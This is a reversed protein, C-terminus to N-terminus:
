ISSRWGKLGQSFRFYLQPKIFLAGILQTM